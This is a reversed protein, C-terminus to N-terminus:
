TPDMLMGDLVLSAVERDLTEKETRPLALLEHMSEFYRPLASFTSADYLGRGEGQAAPFLVTHPHNPVGRGERHEVILQEFAQGMRKGVTLAVLDVGARLAKPLDFMTAKELGPAQRPFVVVQGLFKPFKDLLAVVHDGDYVPYAPADGTGDWNQYAQMTREFITLERSM